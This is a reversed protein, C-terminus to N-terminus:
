AGGNGKGRLSRWREGRFNQKTISRSEDQQTFSLLRPRPSPAAVAQEISAERHPNWHPAPRVSERSSPAHLKLLPELSSCCLPCGLSEDPQSADVELPTCCDIVEVESSSYAESSDQHRDMYTYSDPNFHSFGMASQDPWIPRLNTPRVPLSSVFSPALSCIRTTNVRKMTRVVILSDKDEPRMSREHERKGDISNGHDTCDVMRALVLAGLKTTAETCPLTTERQDCTMARCEEPSLGEMTRRLLFDKIRKSLREMARSLSLDKEQHERRPAGKIVISWLAPNASNRGGQWLDPDWNIWTRGATAYYGSWIHGYVHPCRQPNFSIGFACERCIDRRRIFAM